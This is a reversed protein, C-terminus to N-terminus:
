KKKEFLPHKDAACFKTLTESSLNLGICHKELVKPHACYNGDPDWGVFKCNRCTRETKAM